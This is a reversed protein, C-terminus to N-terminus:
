ADGPWRSGPGGSRRLCELIANGMARNGIDPWLSAEVFRAGAAPGSFRVALLDVGAAHAIGTGCQRCAKPGRHHRDCGGASIRRERGRREPFPDAPARPARFDRTSPGDAGMERPALSTGGLVTAHASEGGSTGRFPLLRTM